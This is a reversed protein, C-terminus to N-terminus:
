PPTWPIGKTTRPLRTWGLIELIAALRRAESTALRSNELGLADKAVEMLYFAGFKNEAWEAVAPQWIDTEYRQDQEPEFLQDELTEDPWWRHTTHYQHVAEAFLQDRAAAVAPVDIKGCRIPWFRRGGTEDKLYQFRNTTGVFCCQRPFRAEKRGYVPRFQEVRRTLFAKLKENDAKQFASLEAIEILWKGTLHASTDKDSTIDKLNDSFYEEGALIECLMSKQRKQEGELVLTYDQKVGPEFIRAVMAVLFLSGAQRVYETDPAELYDHLWAAIRPQGDWSLAALWERIPHYAHERAVIEVAEAVADKTARTIGNRQIWEHAQFIAIDEVPTRSGGLVPTQRMEDYLFVGLFHPDNRLALLVNNLNPIPGSKTTQCAQLWNRGLGTIQAIAM